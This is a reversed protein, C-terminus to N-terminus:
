IKGLEGKLYDIVKVETADINKIESLYWSVWDGFHVLYLSRQLLTQGKSFVEFVYPTYKSVIGKTLDMRAVTREYDTENRFFVVALKDNPTTWGVLENHNMEPLAHHWCLMKSNENIQQRFRVCVGEYDAQSYIVPIKRHLKEALYYAESCIHEEEHDLLHITAELDKKFDDGILGFGNLVYFLQTLSYALCARPPMGGPIVIHDLGASQAIELIKGGSTVCVVKAGRQLALELAAVTEETNGSYSSAIVLTDAGVFGPIFYDKNVVVPINIEREFVQAIISGGIGSGGLGTILINSFPKGSNSFVAKEGIDMAQRLQATFSAILEKM